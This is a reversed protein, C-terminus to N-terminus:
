KIVKDFEEKFIRKVEDKLIQYIGMKKRIVFVENIEAESTNM